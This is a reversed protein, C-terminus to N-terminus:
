GRDGLELWDVWGGVQVGVSFRNIGVDQYARLRHVDFTGPDAELTIEATSAIGYATNLAHLIDAIMPPPVLSPTGGGFYVKSLPPLTHPPVAHTHTTSVTHAWQMSTITSTCVLHVCCRVSELPADNLTATGRIETLLTDLYAQIRSVVADSTVRNGTVAIPFDCYYCRRKCFPLHVYAAVPPNDKTIDQVPQPQLPAAAAAAHTIIHTASHTRHPPAQSTSCLLARKAHISSLWMHHKIHHKVHQM